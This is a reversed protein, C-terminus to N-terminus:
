QFATKTQSWRSTVIIRSEQHGSVSRFEMSYSCYRFFNVFNLCRKLYFDFFKVSRENEAVMTSRGIDFMTRVRTGPIGIAAKRTAMNESTFRQATISTAITGLFLFVCTIMEFGLTVSFKGACFLLDLNSYGGGIFFM